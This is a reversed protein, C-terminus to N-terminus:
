RVERKVKTTEERQAKGQKTQSQDSRIKLSIDKAPVIESEGAMM